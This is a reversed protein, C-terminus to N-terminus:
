WGLWDCVREMFSTEHFEWFAKGSVCGQGDFEIQMKGRQGVWFTHLQFRLVWVSRNPEVLELTKIVSEQIHASCQKESMGAGGLIEEVEKETMGLRIDKWSQPTIRDRPLLFLVAGFGLLLIVLVVATWKLKRKMTGGTRSVAPRAPRPTPSLGSRIGRVANAPRRPWTPSPKRSPPSTM